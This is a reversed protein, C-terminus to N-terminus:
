TIDVKHISASDLINNIDEEMDKQYYLNELTEKQKKNVVREDAWIEKAMDITADYEEDSMEEFTKKEKELIRDIVMEQFLYFVDFMRRRYSEAVELSKFGYMKAYNAIACKECNQEGSIYNGSGFRNSNKGCTSCIFDPDNGISDDEPKEFYKLKIYPAIKEKKM